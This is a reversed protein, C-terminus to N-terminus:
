DAPHYTRTIAQDVMGLDALSVENLQDVQAGYM